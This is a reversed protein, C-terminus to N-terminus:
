KIPWGAARLAARADQESLGQGRLRAVEARASTIDPRAPPRNAKVATARVRSAGSRVSALGGTVRQERADNAAKAKPDREMMRRDLPDTVVLGSETAAARAELGSAGQEAIRREKQRALDLAERRLSLAEPSNGKGTGRLQALRANITAMRQDHAQQQEGRTRDRRDYYDVMRQDHELSRDATRQDNRDDAAEKIATQREYDLMKNSREREGVQPMRYRANDSGEYEFTREPAAAQIAPLGNPVALNPTLSGRIQEPPLAGVAERPQVVSQPNVGRVISANVDAPSPIGFGLETFGGPGPQRPSGDFGGPDMVFPGTPHLDPGGAPRGHIVEGIRRGVGRIREGIGPQAQDPLKVGGAGRVVNGEQRATERRQAYWDLGGQIGRAIGEGTTPENEDYISRLRLNFRGM